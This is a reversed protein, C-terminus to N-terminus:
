WLSLCHPHMRAPFHECEDSDDEESRADDVEDGDMQRHRKTNWSERGEAMMWPISGADKADGGGNEM